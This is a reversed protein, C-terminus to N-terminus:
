SDGPCCLAVTQCRSPTSCRGPRRRLECVIRVGRLDTIEAVVHRDQEVVAEVPDLVGFAVDMLWQARDIEGEVVPKSGEVGLPGELRGLRTRATARLRSPPVGGLVAKPLYEWQIGAHLVYM